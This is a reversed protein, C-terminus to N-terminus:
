AQKSIGPATHVTKLEQHHASFGGSIHVDSVTIFFITFRKM